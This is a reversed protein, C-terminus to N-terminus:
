RSRVCKRHKGRGRRKLHYGRPCRKGPDPDGLDDYFYRHRRRRM